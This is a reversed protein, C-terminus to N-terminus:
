KVVVEEELFTKLTHMKISWDLHEVAYRRMKQPHDPDQYIRSVFRLVTEIDVASEDEPIQLKYPFDPPFDPDSSAIIYPIGRSCYERAKLTSSESLKNRHIGLTGIAVHSEDFLRDLDIGSLFGHFRVHNSLNNKTCLSKLNPIDTGGGVLHLTISSKKAYRALGLIVRDIGHWPSFNAVCIIVIKQDPNFVPPSRLHISDVAIGNPITIFPTKRWGLKKQQSTTIESTVGIGGDAQFLVANGFFIELFLYLYEHTLQYEKQLDANFEFVVKCKRFPRFFNFPCYTLILPYRIYLIDFPGLDRIRSRILGAIKRSHFIRSFITGGTDEIGAKRIGSPSGALTSREGIRILKAETGLDTLGQIQSFIKKKVGSEESVDHM